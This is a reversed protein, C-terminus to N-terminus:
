KTKTKTLEKYIKKLEKDPTQQHQKLTEVFKDRGLKKYFHIFDTRVLDAPEGPAIAMGDVVYHKSDPDSLQRLTIGHKNVIEYDHDNFKCGGYYRAISLQSNAWYEESMCIPAMPKSSM